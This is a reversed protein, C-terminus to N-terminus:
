GIGLRLVLFVPSDGAAGIVTYEGERLTVATSFARKQFEFRCAELGLTADQASFSSPALLLEMHRLEDQITMKGSVSGRLVGSLELWYAKAPVLRKLNEVLEAPIAPAADDVETTGSVVYYTITVQQLPRDIGAIFAKIKEVQEPTDHVLLMNRQGLSMITEAQMVQGTAGQPPGVHFTRHFRRLALDLTTASVHRPEYQWDVLNDAETVEVSQQQQRRRQDPGLSEELRKLENRIKLVQDSTDRILITDQVNLFHSVWATGGDRGPVTAREVYILEGFLEEALGLLTRTSTTQPV